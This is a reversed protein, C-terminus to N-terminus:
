PWLDAVGQCQGARQPSRHRDGSRRNCVRHRRGDGFRVDDAHTEHAKGELRNDIFSGCIAQPPLLHCRVCRSFTGALEPFKERGAADDTRGQVFRRGRDRAEEASGQRRGVPASQRPEGVGGGRSMRRRGRCGLGSWRRSQPLGPNGGHGYLAADGHYVYDYPLNAGASRRWVRNSSASRRRLSSRNRLGVACPRREHRFQSDRRRARPIGRKKLKRVATKWFSRRFHPAEVSVPFLLLRLM